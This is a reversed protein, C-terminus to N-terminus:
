SALIWRGDPSAAAIALKHSNPRQAEAWAARHRLDVGQIPYAAELRGFADSLLEPDRRQGNTIAPTPTQPLLTNIVRYANLIFPLLLVIAVGYILASFGLTSSLDRLLETCSWIGCGVAKDKMNHIGKMFPTSHVLITYRECAESAHSQVEEQVKCAAVFKRDQETVRQATGNYGNIFHEYNTVGFLVLYFFLMAGIALTFPTFHFAFM